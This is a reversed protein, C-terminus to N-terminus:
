AATAGFLETRKANTFIGVSMAFISTFLAILGLRWEADRVKYLVVIAGILLGAAIMTSLWAVFTTIARGSVYGVRGGVHTEKGEGFLFGLHDQVFLFTRDQHEPVQLAVLDDQDDYLTRSSGGLTAWSKDSGPKGNFFKIRFAKLTREHPRSISALRNELLLAKRYRKMKIRIEEALELRSPDAEARIKFANWNRLAQKQEKDRSRNDEDDYEDQRAQLEALESQLHLLNRAALRDFRKYIATTRDEDSAIFDALSPFGSIYQQRKVPAEIDTM